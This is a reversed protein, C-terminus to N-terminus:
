RFRLVKRLRDKGHLIPGCLSSSCISFKFKLHGFPCCSREQRNPSFGQGGPLKQVQRPADNAQSMRATKGEAAMRADRAGAFCHAGEPRVQPVRDEDRRRSGRLSFSFFFTSYSTIIEPPRRTGHQGSNLGCLQPVNNPNPSVTFSDAECKYSQSGTSQTQATPPALVFKEFDIRRFRFHKNVVVLKYTDSFSILIEKSYM